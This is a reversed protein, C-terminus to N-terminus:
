ESSSASSIVSTAASIRICACHAAAPRACGRDLAQQREFKGAIEARKAILETLASPEAVSYDSVPAVTRGSRPKARGPVRIQVLGTPARNM